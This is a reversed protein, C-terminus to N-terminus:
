LWCDRASAVCSIANGRTNTKRVMKDKDNNSSNDNYNNKYEQRRCGVIELPPWM